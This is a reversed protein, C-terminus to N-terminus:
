CSATAATTEAMRASQTWSVIVGTHPHARHERVM